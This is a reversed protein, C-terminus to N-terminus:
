SKVKLGPHLSCQSATVLFALLKRYVPAGALGSKAPQTTSSWEEPPGQGALPHVHPLFCLRFEEWFHRRLREGFDGDLSFFASM